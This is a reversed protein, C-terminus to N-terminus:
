AETNDLFTDSFEGFGTQPCKEPYGTIPGKRIGEPAYKIKFIRGLLSGFAQRRRSCM